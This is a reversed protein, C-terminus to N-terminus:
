SGAGDLKYETYKRYEGEADLNKLAEAYAKRAEAKNGQAMLIDGKMDEVLGTFGPDHEGSLLKLAADYQKEELKLAALQLMAMTKVTSDKGNNMAWDLQAAASKADRAKYNAHAALVAAQAAYPTGVYKEIINASATRVAKVDSVQLGQMAEFLVAAESVQKHQYYKWGQYAALGGLALILVWQVMSGYQKWWAKLEDLQEQEELDYAM